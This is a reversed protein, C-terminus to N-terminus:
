RDRQAAMCLPWETGALGCDMALVARGRKVKPRELSKNSQM